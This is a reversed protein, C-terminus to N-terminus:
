ILSCGGFLLELMFLVKRTNFTSSETRSTANSVQTNWRQGGETCSYEAINLSCPIIGSSLHRGAAEDWEIVYLEGLNANSLFEKQAKCM